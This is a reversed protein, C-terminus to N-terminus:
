GLVRSVLMRYIIVAVVGYVTTMTLVEKWPMDNEFYLKSAVAAGGSLLLAGVLSGIWSRVFYFFIPLGIVAAFVLSKQDMDAIRENITDGFFQVLAANGAVAGLLGGAILGLIGRGM